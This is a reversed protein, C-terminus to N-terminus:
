AKDTTNLQTPLFVKGSSAAADCEVHLHSNNENSSFPKMCFRRLALIRTENKKELALRASAVLYNRRCFLQQSRARV